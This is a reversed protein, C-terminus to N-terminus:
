HTPHICRAVYLQRRELGSVGEWHDSDWHTIVISDFKLNSDGSPLDYDDEIKKIVDKIAQVDHREGGDILVASVVKPKPLVLDGVLGGEDVLLLITSDGIKINIHWSHVQMRNSSM